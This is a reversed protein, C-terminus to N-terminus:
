GHRFVRHHAVALEAAQCLLAAALFWGTLDTGRRARGVLRLADAADAPALVVAQPAWAPATAPPTDAAGAAADDADGGPAFDSHATGLLDYVQRLQHVLWVMKRPHRVVYSPFKTAIVRDVPRGGPATLDLLRWALASALLQERSSPWALPLRVLDVEHGRRAIEDRLTEALMEAGGVEFPLHPALVLVRQSV